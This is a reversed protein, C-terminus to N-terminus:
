GEVVVYRFQPAGTAETTAIAPVSWGAIAHLVPDALWIDIPFEPYWVTYRAVTRYSGYQVGIAANTNSKTETGDM